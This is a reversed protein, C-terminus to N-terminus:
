RAGCVVFVVRVSMEALLFGLYAIRDHVYGQKRKDLHRLNSDAILLDAKPLVCM